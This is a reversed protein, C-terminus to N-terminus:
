FFNNFVVATEGDSETFSGDTKILQGIKPKM